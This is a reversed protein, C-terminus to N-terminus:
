ECFLDHELDSGVVKDSTTTNNHIPPIGFSILWMLKDDICKLM